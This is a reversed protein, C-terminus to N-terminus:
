TVERWIIEKRQNSIRELYARFEPDEDKERQLTEEEPTLPIPPERAQERRENELHKFYLELYVPTEDYGAAISRAVELRAIHRKMGV